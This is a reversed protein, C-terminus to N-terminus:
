WERVNWLFPKNTFPSRPDRRRVGDFREVLLCPVGERRQDLAVVPDEAPAPADAKM